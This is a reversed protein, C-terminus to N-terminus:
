RKDQTLFGVGDSGAEAYAHTTCGAGPRKEQKSARWVQFSAILGLLAKASARYSVGWEPSFGVRMHLLRYCVDHKGTQLLSLCVVCVLRASGLSFNRNHKNPEFLPWGHLGRARRIYARGMCTFRYHLGVKRQSGERAGNHINGHTNGFEISKCVEFIM